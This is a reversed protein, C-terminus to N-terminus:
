DHLKEKNLYNEFYDKTTARIGGAMLVLGTMNIFINLATSMDTIPLVADFGVWGGAIMLCIYVVDLGKAVTKNFFNTCHREM